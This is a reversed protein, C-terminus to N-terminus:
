KCLLSLKPTYDRIKDGFLIPYSRNRDTTLEDKKGIYFDGDNSGYVKDNPSYRGAFVAGDNFVYSNNIAPLSTTIHIVGIVHPINNDVAFNATPTAAFQGNNAVAFKLGSPNTLLFQEGYNLPPTYSALAEDRTTTARRAVTFYGFGYSGFGNYNQNGVFDNNFNIYSNFNFAPDTTGGARTPKSPNSNQSLTNGIASNDLWDSISGATNPTTNDGKLWLRLTNAWNIPVPSFNPDASYRWDFTLCNAGSENYHVIEFTHIGKTLLVSDITCNCAHVGDDLIVQSGDISLRVGDDSCVRFVWMTSSPVNLSGTYRHAEHPSAPTIAGVPSGAGFSISSVSGFTATPNINVDARQLNTIGVTNFVGGPTQAFACAALAFYFALATFIKNM